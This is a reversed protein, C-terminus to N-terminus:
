EKQEQEAVKYWILLAIVWAAGGSLFMLMHIRDDTLWFVFAIVLYIVMMVYGTKIIAATRTSVKKM